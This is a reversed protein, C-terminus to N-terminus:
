VGGCGHHEDQQIGCAAPIPAEFQLVLSRDESEDSLKSTQRAVPRTTWVDSLYQKAFGEGSPLPHHSAGPSPHLSSDKCGEGPAWRAITAVRERRSLSECPFM